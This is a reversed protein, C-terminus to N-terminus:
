WDQAIYHDVFEYDMIKLLQKIKPGPLPKTMMDAPNVNRGVREHRVKKAHLSRTDVLEARRRTKRELERGNVLVITATADLHANLGCVIGLDKAM